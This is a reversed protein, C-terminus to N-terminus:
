KKVTEFPNDKALEEDECDMRKAVNLLRNYEEAQVSDKGNFQVDTPFISIFKKESNLGAVSWDPYEAYDNVGWDFARISVVHGGYGEEKAQTHYISITDSNVVEYDWSIDGPLYMSFDDTELYAAGESARVRIGSAINYVEVLYNKNVYGEKGSDSYGYVYTDDYDSMVYFYDGTYLSELENSADYAPKSRLALYGKEVKVTYADAAKTEGMTPIATVTLGLVASLVAIRNRLNNKM